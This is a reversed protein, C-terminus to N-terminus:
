SYIAGAGLSYEGNTYVYLTNNKSLRDIASAVIKQETQYAHYNNALWGAALGFLLSLFLFARLSFRPLWWIRRLRNKLPQPM